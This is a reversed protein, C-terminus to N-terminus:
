GGHSPSIDIGDIRSSKRITNLKVLTSSIMSLRDANAAPDSKSLEKGLGIMSEEIIDLEDASIKAIVDAGKVIRM